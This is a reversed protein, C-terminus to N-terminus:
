GLWRKLSAEVVLPELQPLMADLSWPRRTLQPFNDIYDEHDGYFACNKRRLQLISRWRSFHLREIIHVTEILAESYYRDRKEGMDRFLELTQALNTNSLYIGSGAFKIGPQALMFISWQGHRIGRKRISYNPKFFTANAFTNIQHGLNKNKALNFHLTRLEVATADAEILNTEYLACLPETVDPRSDWPFLFYPVMNIGADFRKVSVLHEAKRAADKVREQYTVMARQLRQRHVSSHRLEYIAPFSNTANDMQAVLKDFGILKIDEGAHKRWLKDDFLVSQLFEAQARLTDNINERKTEINNIKNNILRRENALLGEEVFM